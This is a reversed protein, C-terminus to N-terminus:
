DNIKQKLNTIFHNNHNSVPKLKSISIAVWQRDHELGFPTMKCEDLSIAAIGRVPNLLIEKIEINLEDQHKISM